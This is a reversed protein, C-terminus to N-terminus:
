AGAPSHALVSALMVQNVPPLYGVKSPPVGYHFSLSLQTAQRNVSARRATLIRRTWDTGSRPQRAQPEQGALRARSPRVDGLVGRTGCRLSLAAEPFNAWGVMSSAPVSARHGSTLALRSAGRQGEWEKLSRDLRAGGRRRIPPPVM